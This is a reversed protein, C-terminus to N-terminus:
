EDAPEEGLMNIDNKACWKLIQDATKQLRDLKLRFAEVTGFVEDYFEQRTGTVNECFWKLERAQEYTLIKEQPKM